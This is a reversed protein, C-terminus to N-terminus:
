KTKQAPLELLSKLGYVTVEANRCEQFFIAGEKDVRNSAKSLGDVSPRITQLRPHIVANQAKIFTRLAEEPYHTHIFTSSSSAPM